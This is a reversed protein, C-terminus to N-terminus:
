AEDELPRVWYPVVFEETWRDLEADEVFCLDIVNVEQCSVRIFSREERKRKVSGEM